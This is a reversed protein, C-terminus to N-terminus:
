ESLRDGLGVQAYAIATIVSALAMIAVVTSLGSDDGLWYLQILAAFGAIWYVLARAKGATHVREIRGSFALGAIVLEALMAVVMGSAIGPKYVVFNALLVLAHLRDRLPDLFRGLRSHQDLWDAALGDLADSLSIVLHVLPIAWLATGTVFLYTYVAIGVLGFGTTINPVTLLKDSVTYEHATGRLRRVFFNWAANANM